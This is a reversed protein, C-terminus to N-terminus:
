GMHTHEGIIGCGPRGCLGTQLGPGYSLGPGLTLVDSSTPRNGGWLDRVEASRRYTSPCPVLGNAEVDRESMDSFAIGAASRYQQWEPHRDCYECTGPSHLVLQDCHPMQVAPNTGMVDTYDEGM